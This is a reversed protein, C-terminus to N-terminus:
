DKTEVNTELVVFAEENPLENVTKVVIEKGTSTIRIRIPFYSGPYFNM